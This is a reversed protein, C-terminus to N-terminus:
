DRESGLLAAMEKRVEKFTQWRQDAIARQAPQGGRGPQTGHDDLGCYTAIIALDDIADGDFDAVAPTADFYGSPADFQWVLEQAQLHTTYLLALALPLILSLLHRKM